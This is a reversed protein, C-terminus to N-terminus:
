FCDRKLFRSETEYSSVGFCHNAATENWLGRSERDRAMVVVINQSLCPLPSAYGELSLSSCERFRYHADYSWTGVLAPAPLHFHTSYGALPLSEELATTVLTSSCCSYSTVALGGTTILAKSEVENGLFPGDVLNCNDAKGATRFVCSHLWHNTSIRDINLVTDHWFNPLCACFYYIINM